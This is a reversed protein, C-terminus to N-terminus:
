EKEKWLIPWCKKRKAKRDAKLAAAGPRLLTPLFERPYKRKWTGEQSRELPLTSPPLEPM